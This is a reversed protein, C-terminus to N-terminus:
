EDIDSDDVHSSRELPKGDYGSELEHIAEEHGLFAAKRLDEMTESQKGLYAYIESRSYYIDKEAINLRFAFLETGNVQIIEDNLPEDNEYRISMERAVKEGAIMWIDRNCTGSNLIVSLDQLSREIIIEENENKPFGIFWGLSVRFWRAAYNNPDLEIAHQFMDFLDRKKSQIEEKSLDCWQEALNHFLDFAKALELTGPRIELDIGENNGVCSTSDLRTDTLIDITLDM